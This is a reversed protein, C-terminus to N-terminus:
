KTELAPYHIGNIFDFVKKCKQLFSLYAIFPIAVNALISLSKPLHEPEKL